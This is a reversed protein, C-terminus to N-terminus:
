PCELGRAAYNMRVLDDLQQEVLRPDFKPLDLSRLLDGDLLIDSLNDVSAGMQQEWSLNYNPPRSFDLTYPHLPKPINITIGSSHSLGSLANQPVHHPTFLGTVGNQYNHYYSSGYTGVYLAQGGSPVHITANHVLVSVGDISVYYTHVGEVSFNYTDITITEEAVAIIRVAELKETLLEDGIKLDVADQWGRETTWIPHKGTARYHADSKGDGDQDVDIHILRRTRNKRHETVKYAKPNEEDEPDDALVMDGPEIDEIAKTTGDAMLIQTGPPFCPVWGNLWNGGCPNSPSFNHLMDLGGLGAGLLQTGGSIGDAWREFTSQVHADVADHTHFADDLYRVGSVDGFFVGGTLYMQQHLPLHSSNQWVTASDMWPEAMWSVVHGHGQAMFDLTAVTGYGWYGGHEYASNLMVQTEYAELDAMYQSHNPHGPPPPLYPPHYYPEKLGSPDVFGTVRGGVYAYLNMGGRYGIPDRNVFRGLQPHYYRFRSYQLGTEPDLRRGTCLFENGISSAETCSDM